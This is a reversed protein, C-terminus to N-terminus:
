KRARKRRLPSPSSEESDTWLSAHTIVKNEVIGPVGFRNWPTRAMACSPLDTIVFASASLKVAVRKEEEDEKENKQKDEREVHSGKVTSSVFLPTRPSLVGAYKERWDNWEKIRAAAKRENNVLDVARRTAKRQKILLYWKLKVKDM